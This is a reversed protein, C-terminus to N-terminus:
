DDGKPNMLLNILEQREEQSLELDFQVTHSTGHNAHNKIRITLNYYDLKGFLFGSMAYRKQKEKNEM